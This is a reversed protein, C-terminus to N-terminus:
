RGERRRLAEEIAHLETGVQQVVASLVEPSVEFLMAWFRLEHAQAISIVVLQRLGPSAPVGSGYCATV